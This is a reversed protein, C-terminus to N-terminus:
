HDPVSDGRPDTGDAVGDFPLAGPLAGGDAGLPHGRRFAGADPLGCVEGTTRRHSASYRLSWSTANWGSPDAEIGLDSRNLYAHYYTGTQIIGGLSYVTGDLGITGENNIARLLSAGRAASSFDVTGFGPSFIFTRSVLGNSLTWSGDANAAFTPAPWSSPPAVLWDPILASNCAAAACSAVLLARSFM